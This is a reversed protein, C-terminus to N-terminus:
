SLPPQELTKILEDVYQLTSGLEFARLQHFARDESNSVEYSMWTHYVLLFGLYKQQLQLRKIPLGNPFRQIYQEYKMCSNHVLAPALDIPFTGIM